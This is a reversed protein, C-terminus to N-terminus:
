DAFAGIVRYVGLNVSDVSRGGHDRVGVDFRKNNCDCSGTLNIVHTISDSSNAKQYRRGNKEQHLEM